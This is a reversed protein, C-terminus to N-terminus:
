RISETYHWREAHGPLVVKPTRPSHV